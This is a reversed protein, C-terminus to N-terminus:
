SVFFVIKSLKVSSHRSSKQQVQNAMIFVRNLSWNVPLFYKEMLLSVIDSKCFQRVLFKNGSLSKAYYSSFCVCFGVSESIATHSTIINLLLFLPSQSSWFNFVKNFNGSVVLMTPNFFLLISFFINQWVFNMIHFLSFKIFLNFQLFLMILFFM